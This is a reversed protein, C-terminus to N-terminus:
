PMDEHRLASTSRDQCLWWLSGAACLAIAFAMGVWVLLRRSGLVAVALAKFVLNAMAGILIVRWGTSPELRGEQVMQATSLTIADMDTLGRFPQWWM